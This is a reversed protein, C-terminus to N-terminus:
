GEKVEGHAAKGKNTYGCATAQDTIRLVSARSELNSGILPTGWFVKKVLDKRVM